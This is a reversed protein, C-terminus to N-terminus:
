LAESYFEVLVKGAAPAAAASHAGAGDDGGLASLAVIGILLLAIGLPVRGRRLERELPTQGSAAAVLPAAPDDYRPM